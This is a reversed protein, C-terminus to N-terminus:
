YLPPCGNKKREDGGGGGGMRTKESCQYKCCVSTNTYAGQPSIRVKLRTLVFGIIKILIVRLFQGGLDFMNMGSIAENM